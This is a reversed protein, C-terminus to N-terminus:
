DYFAAMQWQNQMLDLVMCCCLRSGDEARAILDWQEFGWLAQNWWDGGTVWPGYASEVVYQRERFLFRAPQANQLTIIITEPPRLHRLVSRQQSSAFANVNRSSLSFPEIRFGEEAHTDELVACGTNDEGVIAHIRALTVDLRAAEPLPPSFLGSQVKSTSGPEAHLALALISAPPPHAKLDLHLLKMWLQKDTTPLAPRITRSHSTRGELSLTITVSAMSLIRATARLILQDLMIGVVFLLSELLEVPTDLEMREDLTFASEVPQFLHALEGRALQRLHRGYQGIRAILEKEPLAALMGLTHIGWLAFTEAQQETLDLVTLPLPALVAAEEGLQIVQISTCQSPAKALCVAAHFNNSVVIQASIGLTRVRQLLSSALMAPPGFLDQTGAIDIGCLLSTGESCDEIRPSFAAACELLIARTASEARLSRELAIPDQFTDVEVRTMGHKLGLLRARTNLACVQQFSLEGEMVVCPRSHLEPRLRLLAQAPFEKAYLCAYLEGPSSM